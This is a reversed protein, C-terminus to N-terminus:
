VTLVPRRSHQAVRESVSGLLARVGHLGRSGTVIVEADLADAADLIAGSVDDTEPQHAAHALLGAAEAREAGRQATDRAAHKARADADEGDLPVVAASAYAHHLLGVLLPEWVTLVTAERGPFLTAAADIARDAGESGDYAILMTM